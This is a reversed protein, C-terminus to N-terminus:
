SRKTAPASPVVKAGREALLRATAAGISLSAGTIIVAKDRIVVRSGFVTQRFRAGAVGGAKRRTGGSRRHADNSDDVHRRALAQPETPVLDRRRCPDGVKRRRRVADLWMGSYRHSDARAPAHALQHTSGARFDRRRVLVDVPTRSSDNTERIPIMPGACCQGRCCNRSERTSPLDMLDPWHMGVCRGSSRQRQRAGAM